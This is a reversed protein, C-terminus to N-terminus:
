ASKAKLQTQILENIWVILLFKGYWVTYQFVLGHLVFLAETKLVIINKLITAKFNALISCHSSRGQYVTYMRVVYTASL